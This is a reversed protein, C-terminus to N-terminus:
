WYGWTSNDMLSEEPQLTVDTSTADDTAQAKRIEDQLKKYEADAKPDNLYRYMRYLLAQRYVAQYQDPFPTWTDTLAVKLPARAQYVINVVFITWSPVWAMRIKLIGNGYDVMVAVKEPNAVRSIVALERKATLPYQNPPSSNNNLEQMSASTSYGFNNIGPAGGVDGINQGAQAIWTLTNTTVATVTGIPLTWQSSTGNDTFVSNYASNNGTTMTINNGYLISGVVIRHPELTTLTVTVVPPSGGLTTAIASNSALGVAWGQSPYTPVPGPLVQTGIVFVCAGAFLYDQKNPCLFLGPMEVRNFVWDNPDSILDSLADNCLSLAPENTYGGIGSLPLLDAHTSCFNVINQLPISALGM